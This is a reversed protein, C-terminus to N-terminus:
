PSCSSLRNKYGTEGMIVLTYPGSGNPKSPTKTAKEPNSVGIAVKEYEEAITSGENCCSASRKTQSEIKIQIIVAKDKVRSNNNLPSLNNHKVLDSAIEENTKNM